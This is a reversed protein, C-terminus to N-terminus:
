HRMSSWGHMPSIRWVGVDIGNLRDDSCVISPQRLRQRCLPGTRTGQEPGGRPRRDCRRGPLRSPPLANRLGRMRIGLRRQARRGYLGKAQEPSMYAATGLIMGLGTMLAPSTITPSLSLHGAPASGPEPEVAKALGFDLVKVTGDPRVKVNAPKPDRHVIGQEHAAELADAIQRAIPLVEGLPIPGRAVRESLDEGDVLEMM